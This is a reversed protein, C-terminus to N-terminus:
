HEADAKVGGSRNFVEPKRRASSILGECVSASSAEPLRISASSRGSSPSRKLSCASARLGFDQSTKALDRMGTPILASIVLRNAPRLPHELHIRAVQERALEEATGVQLTAVHILEHGLVQPACRQKADRLIGQRPQRALGGVQPPGVGPFAMRPEGPAHERLDRRVGSPSRAAARPAGRHRRRARHPM